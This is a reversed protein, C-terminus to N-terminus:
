VCRSTYLLCPTFMSSVTQIMRNGLHNGPTNKERDKSDRHYVKERKEGAKRETGTMEKLLDYIRGVKTGMVVQFQGSSEVVAIVGEIREIKGREAKEPDRLEFRLRTFCHTMERINEAGGIHSLIELHTYSVSLRSGAKAAQTEQRPNKM